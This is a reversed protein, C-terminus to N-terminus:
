IMVSGFSDLRNGGHTRFLGDFGYGVRLFLLTMSPIFLSPTYVICLVACRWRQCRLSFMVSSFGFLLVGLSLRLTTLGCLGSSARPRVLYGPVGKM